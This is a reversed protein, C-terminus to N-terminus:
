MAFCDYTGDMNDVCNVCASGLNADQTICNCNMPQGMCDAPEFCAPGAVLNGPAAASGSHYRICFSTNPDCVTAGYCNVLGALDGSIVMTGSDLPQPRPLSLDASSATALDGVAGTSLDASGDQTGGGGGGGGSPKNGPCGIAMVAVFVLAVRM